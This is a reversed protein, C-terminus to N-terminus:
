PPGDLLLHSSIGLPAPPPASVSLYGPPPQPAQGIFTAMSPLGEIREMQLYAIRDDVIQAYARSAAFRFSSTSSLKLGEAELACLRDLLAQQAGLGAATWPPPPPPPAEAGAEVGTEAGAEAGAEAEGAEVDASSRMAATVTLLEDSLADIRPTLKQAFPLALLALARYKDLQM